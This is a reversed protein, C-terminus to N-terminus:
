SSKDWSPVYKPFHHLSPIKPITSSWPCKFCGQSQLLHCPAKHFCVHDCVVSLTRTSCLYWAHALGVSTILVASHLVTSEASKRASLLRRWRGSNKSHTGNLHFWIGNKVWDPDDPVTSVHLFSRHSCIQLRGQGSDDEFEWVLPLIRHGGPACNSGVGKAVGSGWM